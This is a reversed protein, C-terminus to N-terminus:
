ASTAYTSPSGCGTAIAPSTRSPWAASIAKATASSYWCRPMPDASAASSIASARAAPMVSIVARTALSLGAATASSRRMAFTSSMRTSSRSFLTRLQMSMAPTRRRRSSNAGSISGRISTRMRRPVLKKFAGAFRSEVDALDV